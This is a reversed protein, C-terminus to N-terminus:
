GNLQLVCFSESIEPRASAHTTKQLRKLVESTICMLTYWSSNQPSVSATNLVQVLGMKAKAVSKKQCLVQGEESSYICKYALLKLYPAVAFM